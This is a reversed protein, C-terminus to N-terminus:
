RKYDIFNTNSSNLEFDPIDVSEMSFFGGGHRAM